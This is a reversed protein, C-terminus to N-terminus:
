QDADAKYTHAPEEAPAHNRPIAAVLREANARSRDILTPDVAAANALAKPIVSAPM